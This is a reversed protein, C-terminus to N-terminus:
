ISNNKAAIIDALIQATPATGYLSRDPIQPQGNVHINIPALGAGGAGGGGGPASNGSGSSSSSSTNTSTPNNKADNEQEIQQM